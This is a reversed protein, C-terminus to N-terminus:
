KAIKDLTAIVGEMSDPAGNARTEAAGEGEGPVSTEFEKLKTELETIRAMATSLKYALRDFGAAKNRVASLVRVAEDPAMNETGGFAKDALQFGKELLANGKEDGEEPKFWQPYKEAATTNEKQWNAVFDDRQKKTTESLQKERESGQKRYDEIAKLRANNLDRIKERQMLVVSAKNGFLKSAYEAADDDNAIGMLTDFDAESGQRVKGPTVIEGTAPDTVDAERIKLQAVRNRADTYADVWPTEYKDKYEQSREYRTFKLENDLEGLKKEKAEILKEYSALKDQLEKREPFDQPLKSKSELEAYRKEMAALDAKVKDYNARLTAAKEPQAPAAPKAPEAPKSPEKKEPAKPAPKAAPEPKTVLEDLSAFADNLNDGPKTEKPAPSPEVVPAGPNPAPPPSPAPTPAPAPTPSPPAIAEAPM